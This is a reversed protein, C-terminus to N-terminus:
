RNLNFEIPITIPRGTMEPPPAPVPSARSIMTLVAQDLDPFGSSRAIASSLVNGGQDLTFKLHVVGEERRSQSSRPYQKRRNLHSMLQSQWRAPSVSAARPAAPQSSVAQEARPAESPAPAATRPAAQQAPPKPTPKPRKRREQLTASQMVPMPVAVEPAPAEVVDPIIEEPPQEVVPEEPPPLEEPPPEIPEPLPEPLPEPEPPPEEVDPPVEEPQVEPEPPPIETIEEDPTDTPAVEAQEMMTQQDPPMDEVANDVSTSMPALDMMIAAPEGGDLVLEPPRTTFWYVGGAQTGIVVVFASTWLLLDRWSGRGFDDIPGLPRPSTM